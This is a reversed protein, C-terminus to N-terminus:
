IYFIFIEFKLIIFDLNYNRIELLHMFKLNM